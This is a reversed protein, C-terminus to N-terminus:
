SSPSPSHEQPSSTQSQLRLLETRFNTLLVAMTIVFSDVDAGAIAPLPSINRTRAMADAATLVDEVSPNVIRPDILKRYVDSRGWVDHLSAVDFGTSEGTKPDLRGILEEVPMFQPHPEDKARLAYSLQCLLDLEEFQDADKERDLKLKRCLEVCEARAKATEPMRPVRVMVPVEDFGGGKRAKLIKDPFLLRGGFEIVNLDEITKGKLWDRATESAM